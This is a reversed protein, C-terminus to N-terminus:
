DDDEGGGDMLAGCNPCYDTAGYTQVNGCWSCIWRSRLMPPANVKFSEVWHGHRVPVADIYPELRNRMSESISWYPIQKCRYFNGEGFYTDNPNDELEIIYKMVRVMWEQEATQATTTWTGRFGKVRLVDTDERSKQM